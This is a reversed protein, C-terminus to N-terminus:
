GSQEQVAQSSASRELDPITKLLGLHMPKKNVFNRQAELHSFLVWYIPSKEGPTQEVPCMGKDKLNDM